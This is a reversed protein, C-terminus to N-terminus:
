ICIKLCAVVFSLGSCRWSLTRRCSARLCTCGVSNRIKSVLSSSTQSFYLQGWINVKTMKWNHFCSSWCSGCSMKCTVWCPLKKPHGRTCRWQSIQCNYFWVFTFATPVTVCIMTKWARLYWCGRSKVVREVEKEVHIFLIGTVPYYGFHVFSCIAPRTYNIKM